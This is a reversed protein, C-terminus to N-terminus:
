EAPVTIIAILGYVGTLAVFLTDTDVVKKGPKILKILLLYFVLPVLLSFLFSSGGSSFGLSLYDAADSRLSFSFPLASMLISQVATPKTGEMSQSFSRIMSFNKDMAVAYVREEDSYIATNYLPNMILKFNM